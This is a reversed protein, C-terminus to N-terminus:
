LTAPLATGDGLFLAYFGDSMPVLQIETWLATGGTPAAFISFTMAITGTAPTGNANLLRGQYGLRLPVQSAAVAPLLFSLRPITTTATPATTTATTTRTSASSRRRRRRRPRDVRVRPPWLWPRWRRPSAM